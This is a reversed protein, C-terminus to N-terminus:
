CSRSEQQLKGEHFHPCPHCFETGKHMIKVRNLNQCLVQKILFLWGERSPLPCLPPHLFILLHHKPLLFYSTPLLFTAAPKLRRFFFILLYFHKLNDVFHLYPIFSTKGENF